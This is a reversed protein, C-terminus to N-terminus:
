TRARGASFTVPLETIGLVINSRTRKAPGNVRLDPLRDLLAELMVRLELRALSAGVCFHRGGGGFAFHPCETRTVDFTDANKFVAEDRNASAYWMVVSDGERILSGGLETDATATRRFYTVVGAWRLMEEVAQPVLSRDELLIRWQEPYDSFAQIATSMTNMTTDAGAEFLQRFLGVRHEHPVPAGDITAKTFFTALDHAPCVSRKGLLEEVYEYAKRRSEEPRGYKEIMEPDGSAVVSQAWAFVQARDGSPIGLVDCIVDLPVKQSFGEVFDGPGAAIFSSLHRDVTERVNAEMSAVRSPSFADDLIGRQQTHEPADKGLLTERIIDLGGADRNDMMVGGKASSFQEWRRSVKRIDAARTINWQGRGVSEPWDAPAATWLVPAETRLRKFLEHPTGDRFLDPDTMDLSSLQEPAETKAPV